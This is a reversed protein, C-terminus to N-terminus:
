EHTEGEETAEGLAPLEPTSEVDLPAINGEPTLEVAPAAEKKARPKRAPKAEAVPAAEAMGDEDSKGERKPDLLENLEEVAAKSLVLKEYAV